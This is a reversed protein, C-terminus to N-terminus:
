WMMMKAAMRGIYLYTEEKYGLMSDMTNVAKYAFGLPAGGIM